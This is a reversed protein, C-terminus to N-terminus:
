QCTLGAVSTLRSLPMGGEGYGIIDPMWALAGTSCGNILLSVTGWYNVKAQDPDFAPPFAGGTIRYAAMKAVGHDVPGVAQVWDRNGAPDFVFWTLLVRNGPLMEVMLGHGSQAPDFWSGTSANSFGSAATRREHAGIDCHNGAGNTGYAPRPIGREDMPTCLEDRAANLAPSDQGPEHTLMGGGNYALAGLLPDTNPQDTPEGLGCSGDGDINGGSSTVPIECDGSPNGAVISNSMTLGMDSQTNVAADGGLSSNRIENGTITSNEILGSGANYLAAGSANGDAINGSLTVNALRITGTNGIVVGLLSGSNVSLSVGAVTVNRLLTNGSNRIVGGTYFGQNVAYHVNRINLDSVVVSGNDTVDLWRGGDAGSADITAGQGHIVIHTDISALVIPGSPTYNGRPALVIIDAEGNGEAEQVAQRLEFYSGDPVNFVKAQGALPASLLAAVILRAAIRNM